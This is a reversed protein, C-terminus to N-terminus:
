DRGKTSSAPATGWSAGDDGEDELEADEQEDGDELLFVNTRFHAAMSNFPEGQTVQTVRLNLDGNLREWHHVIGDDVVVRGQPEREESLVSYVLYTKREAM